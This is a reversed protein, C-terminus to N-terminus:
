GDLIKFTVTYRTVGNVENAVGLSEWLAWVTLSQGGGSIVLKKRLGYEATSTNAGALTTVSVSGAEDTWVVSRGKSAGGGYTWDLGVIESFASGGWTVRVGHSYVAM